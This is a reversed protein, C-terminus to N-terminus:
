RGRNQKAGQVWGGERRKFRPDPKRPPRKKAPPKPPVALSVRPILRVGLVGLAAGALAMADLWHNNRNYVKWSRVIGKGEVFLEERGEACIHHAFTLHRKPDKGTNFLSCSGDNFNGDTMTATLFREQIWQKWHETHVNYLWIRDENTFQAYCEQFVRRRGSINEGIRFRKTDWGKAAAFPTGGCQRIFEYIATTCYGSDILGFEPPNEGLTDTRWEHLAKLLSVEVAEQDTTKTVNPNEIIGYDIVNLIANGHSAVKVWYSFYKGIDLGFAIKCPEPPLINQGLHSVRKMVIGATLGLTEEIEEQDPDNQLEAMVRSLGWDAVRNFFAQIASVEVAKGNADLRRNFRHPNSVTCGQEMEKKNDLYFQLAELGDKDGDAQNKQRMAIYEDWIDRNDPWTELMGYRDGAFTPKTKRCTVRYSYSRQTQITTLIVRSIATNPGALGAVDGDIMDEIKKNQEDSFAVDRTEPDDILAFEFRGGRIASDLGYYAVHIGGYTSGDVFPLKIEDQTWVIGTKKGNVHQKAARQPAGDLERICDCVEPFDGMLLENRTLARKITKFLKQAHKRTAAIIVISRIRQAMIIYICMWVAVTSKGDGRSAAIAKDGSNHSRLNIADIMALHHKAFPNYFCSNGADDM